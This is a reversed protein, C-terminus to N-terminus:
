ATRRRRVLALAGLGLLALTGPEPIANLRIQVDNGQGFSNYSIEWTYATNGDTFITGEHLPGVVGTNPDLHSFVGDAFAQPDEIDMLTLLTGAEVDAQDFTGLPTLVDLLSGDAIPHSGAGEFLMIDHETGPGTGEIDFHIEEFFTGGPAGTLTLAVAPSGGLHLNGYRAELITDSFLTANAQAAIDTEPSHIAQASPPTTETWFPGSANVFAQGGYGVGSGQAWKGEMNDGGGREEIAMAILYAGAELHVGGTRVRRGHAGKNDVIMEDGLLGDSEWTGSRDLDIWLTSGDDSATGFSYDDTAPAVFVGDFLFAFGGDGTLGAWQGPNFNNIDLNGNDPLDANDYTGLIGEFTMHGGHAALAASLDNTTGAISGDGGHQDDISINLGKVGGAGYATNAFNVTSGATDLAITRSDLLDSGSVTFSGGTVGVQPGGPGLHLQESIGTGPTSTVDQVVAMRAVTGGGNLAVDGETVTLNGGSLPGEVDLSYADRARVTLTVGPDISVASAPSGLTVTLPGPVGNAAQGATLISDATVHVANDYPVDGGASSLVVEGGGGGLTAAGFPDGGDHVGILRGEQAGITAGGLNSGPRNLILDAPGGKTLEVTQGNGNFGTVDTLITQTETILGVEGGTAPDVWANEVTLQDGGTIILSGNKLVLDRLNADFDTVLELTSTALTGPAKWIGDQPNIFNLAGYSLGAGRGWKAEMNDGGGREEIPMAIAYVGPTLHVGGTRERRGHAGKN